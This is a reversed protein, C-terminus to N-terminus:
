RRYQRPLTAQPGGLTAYFQKFRFNTEIFQGINEGFQLKDLVNALYELEYDDKGDVYSKIHIGNSIDAGYSYILNDVLITNEPRRNGLVRFDKVLSGGANSCHQRFLRGNILKGTPDLKDIVLSAYDERAATFVVIEFKQSMRELFELCYPRVYVGIKETRGMPNVISVTEDYRVNPKWEESHILTEDMDLLLTIGSSVGPLQVTNGRFQKGTIM